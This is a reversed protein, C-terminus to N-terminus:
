RRPRILAGTALTLLLMASPEPIIVGSFAARATVGDVQLSIERYIGPQFGLSLLADHTMSPTLGTADDYAGDGDLDWSANAGAFSAAGTLVVEQGPKPMLYPGGAYVQPPSQVDSVTIGSVVGSHTFVNRLDTIRISELTQTAFEPPLAFRQMDVVDRDNDRGPDIRYVNTTTTGNIPHYSSNWNRIDYDGLLDQKAFAGASGIFEIQMRGFRRLGWDSNILTFVSRMM